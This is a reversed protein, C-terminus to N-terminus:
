KSVWNTLHLCFKGPSRSQLWTQFSFPFQIRRRTNENVGMFRWILDNWTTITCHVNFFHALFHSALEFNNTQGYFEILSSRRRRWPKRGFQTYKLYGHFVMKEQNWNRYRSTDHKYVSISLATQIKLRTGSNVRFFLGVQSFTAKSSPSWNLFILHRM